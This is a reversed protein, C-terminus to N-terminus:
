SALWCQCCDISGSQQPHHLSVVVANVTSSCATLLGVWVIRQLNTAEETIICCYCLTVNLPRKQHQDVVNVNISQPCKARAAGCDSRGISQSVLLLSFLNTAM